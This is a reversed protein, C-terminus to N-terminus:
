CPKTRSCIRTTRVLIPISHDIEKSPFPEKEPTNLLAACAPFPSTRSSRPMERFRYLVRSIVGLGASPASWEGSQPLAALESLRRLRQDQTENSTLRGVVGSFGVRSKEAVVAPCFGFKWFSFSCALFRHSLQFKSEGCARERSSDGPQSNAHCSLSLGRRGGIRFRMAGNVRHPCAAAFFGAAAFAKNCSWSTRSGVTDTPIRLLPCTYGDPIRAYRSLGAFMGLWSFVIFTTKTLMITTALQM